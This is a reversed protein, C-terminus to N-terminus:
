STLNQKKTPLCEQGTINNIKKLSKAMTYRMKILTDITSVTSKASRNM